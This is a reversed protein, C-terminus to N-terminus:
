KQLMALLDRFARAYQGCIRDSIQSAMDEDYLHVTLNRDSIMLLWLADDTIMKQAFAERIVGKPSDIGIVGADNLYARASKWALDFTFEFRQIVADRVVEDRPAAQLRAIAEDLRDSARKLQDIKRGLKDMLPVGDRAIEALLAPDTRADVFVIDFKMLTDLADIQDEFRAREILDDAGFVAIDYDSTPRSEGRARSGFLVVRTFRYRKAAEAIASTIEDMM